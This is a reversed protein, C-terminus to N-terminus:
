FHFKVSKRYITALVYFPSFSKNHLPALFSSFCPPPPKNSKPSLLPSSYSYFVQVELKILLISQHTSSDRKVYLCFCYGPILLENSISCPMQLNKKGKNGIHTKSERCVIYSLILNEKSFEELRM